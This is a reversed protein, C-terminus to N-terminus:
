SRLPRATAYATAWYRVANAYIQSDNYARLASKWGQATSLDKGSYCLYGAAALAADDFNDPSSVGDNHADIAYLRWTNPIIQMPGMAQQYDSADDGAAPLTQNGDTGDLSKGRIHPTVEGTPEIVAGHYTGHKSEVMGIGALTTWALHCRPNEVEAVKAAYAYAELAVLPMGLAPAREQAWSRLQDAPRGHAHTDVDPVPDGAPPPIRQPVGFSTDAGVGLVAILMAVASTAIVRLWGTASMDTDWDM